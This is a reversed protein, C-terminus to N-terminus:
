MQKGAKTASFLRDITTRLMTIMGRNPKDEGPRLGRLTGRGLAGSSLADNSRRSRASLGKAESPPFTPQAPFRGRIEFGQQRATPKRSRHEERGGPGAIHGDGAM